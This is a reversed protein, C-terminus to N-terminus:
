SQDGNKNVFNKINEFWSHHKPSHKQPKEDLSSQFEELIKRQESTLDQPTEVVVQCILDGNSRGSRVSPMGKGRLRFERSTQTGAPIKIRLKSDLSPVEVESGLAAQAYSIPVRCHLNREQRTFISHPKVDFEVYLDGAPGGRLGDGGEGQLRLRMGDDVGPPITISLRKSRPTLGRGNCVPCPDSIITGQGGCRRCTTAVRLFGRNITQQGTGNCDPCTMPPAGDRSGTADCAECHRPANVDIETKDGFAAQELSISLNYQLDDGAVASSSRRRGSSRQGFIDGFLDDFNGFVDEFGRGEFPNGGGVGKLGDKGYQDYISRKEGDSLVAYAENVRKFNEENEASQGDSRDPHYKMAMRRYAKKIDADSAGRQIGLTDYYDDSM